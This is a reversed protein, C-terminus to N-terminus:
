VHFPWNLTGRGGSGTQYPIDVDMFHNRKSLTAVSLKKYWPTLVKSKWLCWRQQIILNYWQNTQNCRSSSTGVEQYVFFPYHQIHHSTHLFFYIARCLPYAHWLKNWAYYGLVTDCQTLIAVFPKKPCHVWLMPSIDLVQQVKYFIIRYLFRKTCNQRPGFM